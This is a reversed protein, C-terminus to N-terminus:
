KARSKSPDTKDVLVTIEDGRKMKDVEETWSTKYSGAHWQSDEPSRYEYGVVANRKVAHKRFKPDYKVRREAEGCSDDFQDSLDIVERQSIRYLLCYESM